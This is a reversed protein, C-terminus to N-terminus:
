LIQYDVIYSDNVQISYGLYECLKNYASIKDEARVVASSVNDKDDVFIIYFLPLIDPQPSFDTKSSVVTIPSVFEVSHVLSTCDDYGNVADAMTSAAVYVCRPQLNNRIENENLLSLKYLFKM